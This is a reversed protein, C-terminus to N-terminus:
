ANTDLKNPAMHLNCGRLLTKKFQHHIQIKTPMCIYQCLINHYFCLFFILLSSITGLENIACFQILKEYISPNRFDKRKQIVQNMDMGTTQMKEYLRTIKDQLDQACRGPPEPPLQIDDNDAPTLDVQFNSLFLQEKLTM